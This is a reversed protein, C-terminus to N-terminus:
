APNLRAGHELLVRCVEKHRGEDARMIPSKGENDLDDVPAGNALLLRVIALHGCEAARSVPSAQAEDKANIDVGPLGLLVRVSELQGAGAARSLPSVLKHDRSNVDVGPTAALQLVVEGHNGAAAWSLPSRGYRDCADPDILPMALLARVIGAHGAAAARWLPTRGYSDKANLNIGTTTLLIQVVESHGNGASWSLPTRRFVRDQTDLNIGDITVLFRVVESAGAEAARSLPTQGRNDMVEVNSGPENALLKVLEAQDLSAAVLLPSMGQHSSQLDFDAWRGQKIPPEDDDSPIESPFEYRDGDDKLRDLTDESISSSTEIYSELDETSGWIVGRNSDLDEGPGPNATPLVFLALGEMHKPLHTRLIQGEKLCLPCKAFEKDSMHTASMDALASIQDDSYDSCQESGLHAELQSKSDWMEGCYSCQWRVRHKEAEHSFWRSRTGFTQNSQKCDGFTCIYPQLDQLVHARIWLTM